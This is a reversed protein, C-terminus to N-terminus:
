FCDFEWNSSFDWIYIDVITNLTVRTDPPPSQKVVDGWGLGRNNFHDEYDTCTGEIEIINWALGRSEVESQAIYQNDGAVNPVMALSDVQSRLEVARDSLETERDRLADARERLTGVGEEAEGLRETLGRTAAEVEATRAEAAASSRRAAQERKLLQQVAEEHVQDTDAVHWGIMGTTGLVILVSFVAAIISGRTM